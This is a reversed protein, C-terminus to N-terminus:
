VTQECMNIQPVFFFQHKKVCNKNFSIRCITEGICNPLRCTCHLSIPISKHKTRKQNRVPGKPVALFSTLVGFEFCSPLHPRMQKTDFIITPNFVGNTCFEVLHASAFLCCDVSNTKYDRNILKWINIQTKGM